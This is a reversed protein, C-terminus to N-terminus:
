ASWGDLPASKLIKSEILAKEQVAVTRRRRIWQFVSLTFCSLAVWAILVGFNLGLNDQTRFVVTRVGRSINYFPFAYGFRYFHPLVELPFGAVSMNSIIWFLLFLPIYRVTTITVLSELALGCALMGLWNFAWFIVFGARGFRRDFPLHFARSLLAYFLAVFLYAGFATSLRVCVLSRLTLLHDLGSAERARLSVLVMFFSLILLYILGVFTVASALSNDLPRINSVTYYIPQIIIEPAISLLATTNSTLSINRAFQLAFTRSAQELQSSVLPLIINRYAAENRAESGIFTIALSSNYSPDVASLAASLSSSAGANISVAAWVAEGVIADEVQSVGGPFRDASVVRWAIGHSGANIRALSDAVYQGVVGGDFDVIWGPLAHHPTSRISGWYIACVAFVVVGLLTVGAALVKLYTARAASLSTDFFHASFPPASASPAAPLPSPPKTHGSSAEIASTYQIRTIIPSHRDM